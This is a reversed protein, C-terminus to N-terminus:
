RSCSDRCLERQAEDIEQFGFDARGNRWGHWFAYSPDVPLKEGHTGSLYGKVMEADDLGSLLRKRRIPIM